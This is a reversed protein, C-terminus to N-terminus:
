HGYISHLQSLLVVDNMWGSIDIQHSFEWNGLNLCSFVKGKYDKLNIWIDRFLLLLILKIFGGFLPFM